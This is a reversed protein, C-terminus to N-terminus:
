MFFRYIKYNNDPKTLFDAKKGTIQQFHEVAQQVGPQWYDDGLIQGGPRVKKSWFLLDNLVAQYHHDADIFVCDLSKDQLETDTVQLSEKRIFYVKEKWSSLENKILEFLENFNNGPIKPIKSMIDDVFMDNAYYKVPDILYIKHIDTNKLIQKAHGGYGIGVEAIIKYNYENIVNSLIGYYGSAWLENNENKKIVERYYEDLQM